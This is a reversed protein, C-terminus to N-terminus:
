QCPFLALSLRWDIRRGFYSFDGSPIQRFRGYRGYCVKMWHHLPGRASRRTSLVIQKIKNISIQCFRDIEMLIQCQKQDTTLRSTVLAAEASTRGFRWELSPALWDKERFMVLLYKLLVAMGIMVYKWEISRRVSLLRGSSTGRILVCNAKNKKM